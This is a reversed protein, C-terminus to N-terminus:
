MKWLSYEIYLTHNKKTIKNTLTYETNFIGSSKTNFIGSSKTSFIFIRSLLKKPLIKWYWMKQLLFLEAMEDHDEKHKEIQKRINESIWTSLPTSQIFIFPSSISCKPCNVSENLPIYIYWCKLCKKEDHM